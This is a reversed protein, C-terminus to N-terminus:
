IECLMEPFGLFPFPKQAMGREVSKDQTVWFFLFSNGTNGPFGPMNAVDGFTKGETKGDGSLYQFFIELDSSWRVGWLAQRAGQWPM